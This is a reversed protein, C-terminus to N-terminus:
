EFLCSFLNTEDLKIGTNRIEGVMQMLHIIANIKSGKGVMSVMSYKLKLSIVVLFLFFTLIFEGYNSKGNSCM